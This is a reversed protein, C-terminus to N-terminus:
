HKNDVMNKYNSCSKIFEDAAKLNGAFHCHLYTGLINKYAYGDRKVEGKRNTCQYAWPFSKTDKVILSSYHFEHGRIKDGTQALISPKIAEFERYGMSVLRKEMKGQAPILGLMPYEKHERDIISECLYMFGGCEGYIPLGQTAKSLIDQKLSVNNALKELFMEPYGGGIILGYIDPPLSSDRLPSFNVWEVGLKELYDLSDQYYFHFAEDRAIAIRIKNRVTHNWTVTEKWPPAGRAITLLKDIDLNSGVKIALEKFKNKLREKETVPVLGMYREPLVLEEDRSIYGVVPIKTHEEISEKVLAFHGESGIKNLIVGAIQVQPDFNQYGLVLAAASQAMSHCNIILIVPANLLKAIEATSSKISKDRHGDYLGMVGEIIALDAKQASQIFFEKLTDAPMLWTDLNRSSNGTAYTHYTPDIYDPGIKYPQIKYGLFTLYALIGTTITTKGVGSHTGALVLRPIQM